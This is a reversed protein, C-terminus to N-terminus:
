FILEILGYIALYVTLRIISKFVKQPFYIWKGWEEVPHWFYLGMILRDAIFIIFFIPILLMGFFIKLIHRIKERKM